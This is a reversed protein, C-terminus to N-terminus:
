SIEINRGVAKTVKPLTVTLMGNELKAKINKHDVQNNLNFERHFHSSRIERRLYGEEERKEEHKIEKGGRVILEENEVSVSLDKKEIGPMEMTLIYAEDTERVDTLPRRAVGEDTEISRLMPLFNGEFFSDFVNPKYKTLFMIVGGENKQTTPRRAAEGM